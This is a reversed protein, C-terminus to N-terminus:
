WSLITQLRHSAGALTLLPWSAALINGHYLGFLLRKSVITKKLLIGNVMDVNM